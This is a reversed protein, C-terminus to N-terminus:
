VRERSNRRRKGCRMCAPASSRHMRQAPDDSQSGLPRGREYYQESASGKRPERPGRLDDRWAM